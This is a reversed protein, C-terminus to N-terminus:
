NVLLEILRSPAVTATATTTTAIVVASGNGTQPMVSDLPIDNPRRQRHNEAVANGRWDNIGYSYGDISYWAPQGVAMDESGYLAAPDDEEGASWVCDAV